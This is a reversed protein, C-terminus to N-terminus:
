PALDDAVNGRRLRADRGSLKAEGRSALPLRVVVAGFPDFLLGPALAGAVAVRPLSSRRGLHSYLAEFGESLGSLAGDVITRIPRLPHDDTVEGWLDVYSSLSGSQWDEGRM